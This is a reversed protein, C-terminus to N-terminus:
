FKVNYVTNALLNHFLGKKIIIRHCDLMENSVACAPQKNKFVASVLPMNLNALCVLKVKEAM